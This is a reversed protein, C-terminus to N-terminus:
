KKEHARLQKITKYAIGIGIPITIATVFAISVNLWVSDFVPDLM